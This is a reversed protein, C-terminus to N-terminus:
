KLIKTKLYQIGEIFFLPRKPSTYHRVVTNENVQDQIQYEATPLGVLKKLCYAYGAQEIFHKNQSNKLEFNEFYKSLKELDFNEKSYLVIGSNLNALKDELKSGDKFYVYNPQRYGVKGTIMLSLPSLNNIENEIESPKRFWLLDSDIILHLKRDSVFYPDILKKLLLFEPYQTRFKKIIPYKELESLYKGLLEQPEVILANPFFKKILSKDNATLSGDSHIYLQGVTETVQYFTALSWILIILDHHSTLIHISLDDRNIPKELVKKIKLIEPALFYKNFLYRFGKKYGFFAKRLYFLELKIIRFKM